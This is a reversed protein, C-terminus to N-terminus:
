LLSLLSSSSGNFIILYFPFINWDDVEEFDEDDNDKVNFELLVNEHEESAKPLHSNGNQHVQYM